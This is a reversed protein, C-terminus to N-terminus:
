NKSVAAPLMLRYYFDQSTEVYSLPPLDPGIVVVVRDLFQEM